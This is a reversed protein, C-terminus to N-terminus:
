ALSKIVIEYLDRSLTPSESLTNLEQRMLQQRASDYRGMRTLPTTMRAAVQPNLADLKMIAEGLFKYGSGDLAHFKRNNLMGFAAYVSRVRNPNKMDFDPHAELARLGDIDILPSQAQLNFWLDIVLAYDQWASYFDQLLSRRYTDSVGEHRCAIGLVTRRDTLNDAKVYRAQLAEELALGELTRAMYSFAVNGLARRAMGAADAKYPASATHRDVLAAWTDAHSTAANKIARDRADLLADVDFGRLQEFLYNENPVTLMTAALLQQEPTALELAGKALEGLVTVPDITTQANADFHSMWLTQLADWRVFGDTDHQVLFALEEDDREHAVKVPASFGRLFSVVPKAHLNSITLETTSEKAGLLLTQNNDRLSTTATSEIDSDALALSAGDPALFGMALPMHFPQQQQANPLDAPAQTISLTLSGDVYSEAVQVKPTGPQEYWRKFQALDIQGAQAMADAFDDTTAATGDHRDFYLDTGQRFADEGLLTHYMRVVEAGKEYITTTYFNSIEMYSSPRVPHALPGADEAFQISRLFGVDEIRKVSRSNMDSSFEADRFVTFGEKLSLQFWDRCTVRNGSWNHFYEHAVVAEVRQYAEDTATDPSALVCSTNFVNLGKNEMAGMNFDEVAVIMYIDLDYERGFRKEDWRMSRKLVDMAYDCQQINHAESFIQLKVQRGSMTTFTDELLALDGAVLAFLYSPKPFPDQWTVERRGDPLMAEHVLNGNSLLNPYRQADAVITTKFRSLVDPRDQYYTIKRFGEAECQTCYMSSSRYLGELATNEEPCIQTVIRIEHGEDLNFLTLSHDSLAYENSSLARGDLEVSVLTLEEGLLEMQSAAADQRAVQLTSTVTTQGDRIDFHLQTQQTTYGPPQYDALYIARPAEEAATQGKERKELNPQEQDPQKQEPQKQESM